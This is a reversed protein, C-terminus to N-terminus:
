KAAPSQHHRQHQTNGNQEDESPKGNMSIQLMESIRKKDCGITWLRANRIIPRRLLTPDTAILKILEPRPPMQEDLKLNQYSESAPNLFMNIDWNGLLKTVEDETFPKNLLDRYELDVGAGEIFRKIEACAEDGGYTIFTARKQAM